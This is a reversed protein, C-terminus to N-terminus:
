ETITLPNYSLDMEVLQTLSDLESPITGSLNNGSLYLYKLEYLEGIAPPIEGSVGRNTLDISYLTIFDEKSQLTNISKGKLNLLYEVEDMFWKQGECQAIFYEAYTTQPDPDYLKETIVPTSIQTGDAYIGSVRITYPTDKPIGTITHTTANVLIVMDGYIVEYETVGAIPIWTLTISDDEAQTKHFGEIERPTERTTLILGKSDMGEGDGTNVWVFFEYETSPTLNELLITPETTTLVIDGYTVKYEIAGEFEPWYLVVSNSTLKEFNINFLNKPAYGTVNRLTPYMGPQLDWITDFDWGVYTEKIQLEASTRAQEVPTTKGTIISDFYASQITIGSSQTILGAGTGSVNGVAYCNTLITGSSGTGVLGGIRLTTSTSTSTVDGSAFCNLLDAAQAQGAFGGLYM